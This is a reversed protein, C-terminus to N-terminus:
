EGGNQESIRALEAIRRPDDKALLHWFPRAPNKDLRAAVDRYLTRAESREGNCYALVFRLRQGPTLVRVAVRAMSAFESAIAHNHNASLWRSRPCDIWILAPSEKNQLLLINRLKLDRHFFGARHATQLQQVLTTQLRALIRHKKAYPFDLWQRALYQGLEVTDPIELTVIFSARLLGLRRKEGYALVQITDIGLKSLDRFGAAEVAAKAAQLWYKWRFKRYVYRKFYVAQGDSLTFRFNGTTHYSASVADKSALRTWDKGRGLGIGALREQWQPDIWIREGHFVHMARTHPIHNM